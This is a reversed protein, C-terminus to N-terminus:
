HKSLRVLDAYADESVRGVFEVQDDLELRAALDNSFQLRVRDYAVSTIRVGTGSRIPMERSCHGDADIKLSRCIGNEDLWSFTIWGEGYDLDLMNEIQANQISQMPEPCNGM